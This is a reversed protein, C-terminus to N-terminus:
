VVVYNVIFYALAASMGYLLATPLVCIIIYSFTDVEFITALVFFVTVIVTLFIAILISVGLM